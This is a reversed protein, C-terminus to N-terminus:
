GEVWYEHWAEFMLLSWLYQQWNHTGSLHEKWRKRVLKSQLIGQERIKKESLLNEAWERLEVRLWNDIPMDFGAKPRSILNEPVKKRLLKKLIWKGENKRFKFSAPLQWAYEVLEHDLFPVRAELGVSMSARDVKTLIDDPLYRITDLLM